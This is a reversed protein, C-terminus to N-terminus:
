DTRPAGEKMLGHFRRLIKGSTDLSLSAGGMRVPVVNVYRVDGKWFGLELIMSELAHTKEEMGMFIFNGLSYGILRGKYAEMRQIVHPHCAIVMTFGAEILRHYLKTMEPGPRDIYESGGHVFILSIARPDIRKKMAAITEERNWSIGARTPTAAAERAGDWGSIEVPYAGMSFLQIKMGGLDTEWPKVAEDFNMGAGSQPLGWAKLAALTDTFAQLGYDFSHNNAITVWGFGAEKLRPALAPPFRFHYSKGAPVGRTSLTGELNGLLLDARRLYPLTDGFVAEIGGPALLRDQVGRGAMIDGVASIYVPRGSARPLGKLWRSLASSPTFGPRLGLVLRTEFPYGPDGPRFGNVPMARFPLRISELDRLGISLAEEAGCGERPDDLPVAPAKWSHKLVITSGASTGPTGLDEPFAGETETLTLDARKLDAIKVLNIGSGRSASSVLADLRAELGPAAAVTTPPASCRLLGAM